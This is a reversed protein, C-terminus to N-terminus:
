RKATEHQQEDMIPDMTTKIDDDDNNNGWFLLPISTLLAFVTGADAKRVLVWDQPMLTPAMSTGKVCVIDVFNDRIWIVVPITALVYWFWVGGRNDDGYNLSSRNTRLSAPAATRISGSSSLQWSHISSCCHLFGKKDLSSTSSNYTLLQLERFGDHVTMVSSQRLWGFVSSSMTLLCTVISMNMLFNQECAKSGMM